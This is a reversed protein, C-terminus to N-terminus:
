AANNAAATANTAIRQALELLVLSPASAPDALVVPRNAWGAADVAVAAPVVALLRDGFHTRLEKEADAHTRNRAVRNLVLGLLRPASPNGPHPLFRRVDGALALLSEVGALAYRSPDLPILIETAAALANLSLLGRGPATDIITFDYGPLGGLAARLRLDRGPMGVLEVAADALDPHAPLLDVGPATVSARVVESPDAKDLLVAAISEGGSLEAADTLTTTANSQPDLDVLLVRHGLGALGAALNVAVTSKGVGGKEACVAIIRGM